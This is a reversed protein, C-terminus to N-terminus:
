YRAQGGDKHLFVDITRRDNATNFRPILVLYAFAANDDTYLTHRRNHYRLNMTQERKPM